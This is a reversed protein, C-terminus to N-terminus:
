PCSIDNTLGFIMLGLVLVLGITTLFRQAAEPPPRRFVAEYAFFVLHGGDLIPIPLLNLFGIATSLIAVWLIFDMVGGAAAQGTGQAISIAGGLNCRSIEGTLMARMGTLSNTIVSWTRQAGLSAAELPGPTRTEPQFYGDGIQVGIMPRRIFGGEADPMDRMRPTLATEFVAGARWIRLTVPRDDAAAILDSMQGFRQIDQGDVALVVDGKRLGAAAAASRPMVGGISPPMPDPGSVTVEAGARRVTWDHSDAPAPAAAFVAGWSAVPTGDLALVEDGPQLQNVVAPPAPLIRAITPTDTALGQWMAVGGFVLVSLVFNFVPGAAVTATRAWLPAGELTQRALAPDVARARGASAADSDGLFRVYGGLPLAAVQWVTGRRDTRRWLVPGFGVSFVEARIGSWRGVIYHGYEHVTVIIGLALVFSAVTWLTAGAGGLIAEIM